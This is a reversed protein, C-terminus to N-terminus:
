KKRTTVIISQFKVIKIQSVDNKETERKELSLHRVGLGVPLMKFVFM